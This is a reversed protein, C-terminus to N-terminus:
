GTDTYRLSLTSFGWNHTVRKVQSLSVHVSNYLSYRAQVAGSYCSLRLNM